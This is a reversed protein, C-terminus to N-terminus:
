HKPNFRREKRTVILLSKELELSSDVHLFTDDAAERGDRQEASADGHSLLGNLVDAGLAMGIDSRRL